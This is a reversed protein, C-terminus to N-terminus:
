TFYIIPGSAFNVTETINYNDCLYNTFLVLPAVVLVIFIVEGNMELIAANLNAFAEIPEVDANMIGCVDDISIPFRGNYQVIGALNDILFEM